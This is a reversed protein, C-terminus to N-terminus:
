NLFANLLMESIQMVTDPSESLDKHFYFEFSDIIQVQIAPTSRMIKLCAFIETLFPNSATEPQGAAILGAPYLASLTKGAKSIFFGAEHKLNELEERAKKRFNPVHVRDLLFKELNQAHMKAIKRLNLFISIAAILILEPILLSWCLEEGPYTPPVISSTFSTLMATMVLVFPALVVGGLFLVISLWIKMQFSYPDNREMSFYRKGSEDELLNFCTWGFALLSLNAVAPHDTLMSVLAYLFCGLSTCLGIYYGAKIRQIVLIGALMASIFIQYKLEGQSYNLGIWIWFVGLLNVFVPVLIDTIRRKM